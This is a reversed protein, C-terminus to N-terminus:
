LCAGYDTGMIVRCTRGSSCGVQPSCYRVCTRGAEALCFNGPACENNGDCSAGTPRNGGTPAVYFCSPVPTSSGVFCYPADRPCGNNVTAVPNCSSGRSPTLCRGSICELNGCCDAKLTCASGAASHCCTFEAEVIENQAGCVTNTPCCAPAAAGQMCAQGVSLSCAPAAQACTGGRCELSGCCGRDGSCPSGAGRCCVNGAGERTSCNFGAACCNPPAQGPVCTSGEGVNCMAVAVDVTPIGTDRPPTGVDVPTQVIDTPTTGSDVATGSDEESVLDACGCTCIFIVLLSFHKSM